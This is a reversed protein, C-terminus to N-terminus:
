PNINPATLYGTINHAWGDLKAKYCINRVINVKVKPNWPLLYRIKSRLVVELVKHYCYWIYLRRRTVTFSFIFLLLGINRRPIDALMTCFKLFSPRSTKTLILILRSVFEIYIKYYYFYWNMRAYKIICIYTHLHQVIIAGVVTVNLALFNALNDWVRQRAQLHTLLGPGPQWAGARVKEQNGFKYTGESGVESVMGSKIWILFSLYCNM